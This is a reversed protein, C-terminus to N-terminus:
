QFALTKAPEATDIMARIVSQDQDYQQQTMGLLDFSCPIFKQQYPVFIILNWSLQQSPLTTASGIMATGPSTLYTIRELMALGTKTTLERVRIRDPHKQSQDLAGTIFLQRNRDLMSDMLTLSIEVDGSPMSGELFSPNMPPDLKWGAPLTLTLPMIKLPVNIQPADSSQVAVPDQATTATASTNSADSQPRKDCAVLMLMLASLAQLVVRRM